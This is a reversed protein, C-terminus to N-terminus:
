MLTCFSPCMAAWSSACASTGYGGVLRSSKIRLKKEEQQREMEQARIHHTKMMQKVLQLFAEDVNEGLKASTSIVHDDAGIKDQTKLKGMFRSVIEDTVAASAPHESRLDAKNGIVVMETGPRCHHQLEPLWVQDLNRASKPDTQDYIMLIGHGGRYYSTTISRFREQGATDWIQLKIRKGDVDFSRIKFDVGITSIYSPNWSRPDTYRDVISTKGVASDGILLVKFLVDYDRDLIPQHHHHTRQVAASATTAAATTGFLLSDM